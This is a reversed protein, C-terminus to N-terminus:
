FLIEDVISWSTKSLDAFVDLDETAARGEDSAWGAEMTDRDEFYLEVIADWLPPKRSPDDAPLNQAYRALGPIKLAMPGHVDRLYIRFARASWDPRRHLVVLFKM